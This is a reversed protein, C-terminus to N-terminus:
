RLSSRIPFSNRTKEFVGDRLDSLFDNKKEEDFRLKSIYEVAKELDFPQLKAESFGEWSVFEDSPRSTVLLACKKHNRALAKIESSVQERIEHKLEDFGDLLFYFAGSKLGHNFQARTFSDCCSRISQFMESVLSGTKFSLSNLSRLEFFVPYYSHGENIVTRFSYKLFVSKGSGALGTIVVKDGSQNM